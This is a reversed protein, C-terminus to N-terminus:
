GAICPPDFTAVEKGEYYIKGDILFAIPTHQSIHALASSDAITYDPMEISSIGLCKRLYDPDPVILPQDARGAAAMAAKVVLATEGIGYAKDPDVDIERFYAAQRELLDRFKPEDPTGAAQAALQKQAFLIPFFLLISGRPAILREAAPALFTACGWACVRKVQVTMKRAHIMRGLDLLPDIDAGASEIVLTGIKAGDSASLERKVAEVTVAAVYGTVSIQSGSREVLAPPEAPRASAEQGAPAPQALAGHAGGLFLAAALARTGFNPPNRLTLFSM